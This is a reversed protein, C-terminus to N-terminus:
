TAARRRLLGDLGNPAFLVFCIMLLGLLIMYLEPLNAWLLESLAVLFFAGMLPGRARDSGGIVAMTVVTFSITPSFIQQPEFYATRLAVLGGVMGPAAASLAYALLKYRAAPVGATEAAPEDERIARLGLGFRSREVAAVLLTAGLALGLMAWYLSTLGPGGLLLRGFKGLAAEINIVIFKVLEALGFTLIVFYPGRVRLVPYGVLLAFLAAAAGALAIAAPLPLLHWILVTVYGGIGYFVAHGLSVYGTLGSLLVWSETLAIWMLLQFGVGLAYTGAAFPLAALLAFLAAPLVIGSARISARM